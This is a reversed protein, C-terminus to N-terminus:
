KRQPDTVKTIWWSGDRRLTSFSMKRIYDLTISVDHADASVTDIRTDTIPQGSMISKWRFLDDALEYKEVALLPRGGSNVMLETAATTNGSDLEAKFM